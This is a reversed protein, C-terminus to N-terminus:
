KNSVSKGAIGMAHRAFWHKLGPLFNLGMLGTNRIFAAPAEDQSFLETLWHSTGITKNQDLQQRQLYRQLVALSGLNEQKQHAERLTEALANGDRLTLNFGQGAVPHMSHAANGMLVVRSRIQEQARILSLPYITRKGAKTFFGLRQGFRQQVQQLFATDDMSQVTDSFSEAITWVLACRHEGEFNQLPLLAMPGEDTFREYAIHDHFASTTVNAIVAAQQYPKREVGIGLQDRLKSDAGDAIVLLDCQLTESTNQLLVEVHSSKLNVREVCTSGRLTVSPTQQLAEMLVSGLQRNEIVYGLAEGHRAAPTELLTGAPHGRDSVHVQAIAELHPLLQDWINLTQFIQCTGLSLASSRDDYSPPSVTDSVSLPFVDMLTIRLEPLQQALLLALCSGAMGGGVIAIDCRSHSSTM